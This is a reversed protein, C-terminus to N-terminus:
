LWIVYTVKQTELLFLKEVKRRENMKQFAELMDDETIADRDDRVCLFSAENVISSL